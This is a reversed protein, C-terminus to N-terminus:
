DVRIALGKLYDGEPFSLLVPHDASQTLRHLIKADRGADLAAGAVIKQFLDTTIAGSCSFTFLLGGPRLLKFALLNIDKYGRAAGGVQSQAEAFKPPDLVILDFSRRSDRYKRLQNFVDAETHEVASTDLGNATVLRTALALADGSTDVNTVHKAGGRLAAIGFGGTYSFANLVERGAASRGVLARNDRQDLYYGTKHGTRVNIDFRGGPEAITIFEPPDEGALPGIREALGERARIDADSREFIGRGPAADQLAAAILDRNRDAWATTLQVVTFDGYRDAVLGPLGDSEGHVLRVGSESSIPLGADRRLAVAARVRERVFAEDVAVRADFTLMRARIQSSPSFGAHGLPTGNPDCVDVVEGAEAHGEIRDVAGSFVWPHRRLISANRDPKLILRATM